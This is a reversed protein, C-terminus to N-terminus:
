LLVMQKLLKDAANPRTLCSASASHYLIDIRMLATAQSNVGSAIKEAASLMRNQEGARKLDCMSSIKIM